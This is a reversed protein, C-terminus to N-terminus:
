GLLVPEAAAGDVETVVRDLAPGADASRKLSAAASGANTSGYAPSAPSWASLQYWRNASGKQRSAPKGCRITKGRSGSSHITQTIPCSANPPPGTRTKKTKWLAASRRAPDPVSAETRQASPMSASAIPRGHGHTTRIPNAVGNTRTGLFIVVWANEMGSLFDDRRLMAIGVGVLGVVVLFFFMSAAKMRQRKTHRAM